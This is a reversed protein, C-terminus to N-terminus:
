KNCIVMKPESAKVKAVVTLTVPRYGSVMVTVVKGSTVLGSGDCPALKFYGQPMWKTLGGVYVPYASISQGLYFTGGGNCAVSYTGPGYDLERIAYSKLNLTITKTIAKYEVVTIPQNLTLCSVTKTVYVNKTITNLVNATVTKTMTELVTSTTYLTKFMTETVTTLTTIFSTVFKTFTQTITIFTIGAPTPGTTTKTVKLNGCQLLSYAILFQATDYYDEIDSGPFPTIAGNPAMHLALEKELPSKGYLLKELASCWILAELGLDKSDKLELLLANLWPPAKGSLLSFFAAKCACALGSNLVESPKANLVESLVADWGEIGLVKYVYAEEAKDCLSTPNVNLLGSPIKYGLVKLTLAAILPDSYDTIIKDALNTNVSLGCLAQALVTAEPYKGVTEMLNVSPVISLPYLAVALALLALGARMSVNGFNPDSGSMFTKM